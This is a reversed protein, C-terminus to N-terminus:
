ENERLERIVQALEEVSRLFPQWRPDPRFTELAPDVAAMALTAFGSDRARELEAFGNDLDGVAGHVTAAFYASEPTTASDYQSLIGLAQERDGSLATVYALMLEWTLAPEQNLVEQMQAMADSFRGSRALVLGHMARAMNFNPNIDLTRQLQADAEDWRGQYYLVLGYCYNIPAMLPDIACGERAHDAAEELRNCAALALAYAYRAIASDPNLELSREAQWIAEALNFDCFMEALCLAAHAESLTQDLEIAQRASAKAEGLTQATDVRGVVPLMAYAIAMCAYAPALKADADIAQRYLEIARLLAEPTWQITNENASVFLEEASNSKHGRAPSPRTAKKGGSSSPARLREGVQRAIEEHIETADNTSCSFQSGWFQTDKAVDIVEARISLLDGRATVRGTLVARVSLERGVAYPDDTHERYRFAKSRPVVRLKPLHSLGDLVGEAITDCLDDLESDGTANVFPLVALSDVLKGAKRATPATAPAAKVAHGDRMRRLDTLVEAASQYRLRCDKQLLKTVINCFAPPLGSNFHSLPVPDRNLIADFTLATTSGSFPLAGSAMEYLVIGFSFLDSRADLKHGRAQEPSMYAITGVTQGSTTLHQKPNVEVAVPVGDAATIGAATVAATATVAFKQEEFKALGFDLVKAEGRTTLFVNAPKIDRHVIGKKHAADLADTVQIGVRILESNPISGEAIRERLTQGELLEMTIFHHGDAEDVEHITCINPHNLSSASRAERVLREVMQPDSAVEPPLTKLAVERGLRTDQARYVVGMGGAGLKDLVRYHSITTGLM